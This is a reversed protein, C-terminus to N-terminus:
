MRANADIVFTNYPLRKRARHDRSVPRRRGRAELATFDEGPYQSNGPRPPRFRRTPVRFRRQPLDATRLDLGPLHRLRTLGIMRGKMANYLDIIEQARALNDEAQLRVADLFFRCWGTWDDDRSVALLGDYYADRRTEFYASIYFMPARILGAQWLFLPVLMRGLRGNGDLFPHLGFEHLVALQVLKDPADAHIYREWADMAEPLRNAEVPVFAGRGRHLWAAALQPHAPILGSVEGAACCCEHERIVRQSLPVELSRRVACEARYNLVEHIDDRRERSDPERGAEFQLVEGM